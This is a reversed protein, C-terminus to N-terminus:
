APVGADLAAQTEAAATPADGRLVADYITDLSM